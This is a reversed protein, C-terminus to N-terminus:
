DGITSLPDVLGKNLKGLAGGEEGRINKPIIYLVKWGHSQWVYYNTNM